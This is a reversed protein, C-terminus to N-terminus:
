KFLRSNLCTWCVYGGRRVWVYNIIKRDRGHCASKFHKVSERELLAAVIWSANHVENDNFSGAKHLFEKCRSILHHNVHMDNRPRSEFTKRILFFSENLEANELKAVSGFIKQM